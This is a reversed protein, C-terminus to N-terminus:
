GTVPVVSWEIAATGFDQWVMSSGAVGSIVGKAVVQEVGTVGFVPGGSDGGRAATLGDVQTSQILNEYCEFTGYMDTDCYSAFFADVRHNCIVGSVSGSSCLWEGGYVWDWYAVGKTFEGTGVGGDFMRGGADTGILLIDYGRHEFSTGGLYRSGDGNNWGTSPRGCHGATLMYERNDVTSRVGFGTTCFWNTENNVIRAGGYYPATDNIRATQELRPQQEIRVPVGVDFLRAAERTAPRDTGVVLGSGDMAIKVTHAPGDPRKRIQEIVTHSAAKLDALSFRAPRVEVPATRGARAVATSVAPPPTGKYWLVVAGDRLEIGSYGTAGTREVAWRVESAAAKARDQARMRERVDPPLYSFPQAEVTTDPKAPATANSASAPTGAVLTAVGLAAFVIATRTRRM